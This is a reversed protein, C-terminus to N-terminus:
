SVLLPTTATILVAAGISWPANKQAQSGIADLVLRISLYICLTSLILSFCRLVYISPWFTWIAKLVLYLLPPHIDDLASLARALLEPFSNEQIILLTGVEDDFPNRFVSGTYISVLAYILCGVLAAILEPSIRRMRQNSQMLGRKRASGSMGFSDQLIWRWD